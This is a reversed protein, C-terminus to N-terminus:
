PVLYYCFLIPSAYLNFLTKWHCKLPSSTDGSHLSIALSNPRDPFFSNQHQFCGSCTALCIWAGLSHPSGLALVTRMPWPSVLLTKFIFFQTEGWTQMLGPIHGGQCWDPILLPAPGAPNGWTARSIQATKLRDRTSLMLFSFSCCVWQNEGM